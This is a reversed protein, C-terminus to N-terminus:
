PATVAPEAPAINTAAAPVAVPPPTNDIFEIVDASLTLKPVSFLILYLLSRDESQNALAISRGSLDESISDYLDRKAKSYSPNSFPLIGLLRFGSSDGVANAKVVKYNNQNLSVGTANSQDYRGGGSSACGTLLTSCLGAALAAILLSKPTTRIQKM